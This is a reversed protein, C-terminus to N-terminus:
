PLQRIETMKVFSKAFSLENALFKIGVFILGGHANAM